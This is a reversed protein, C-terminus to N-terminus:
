AAEELEVGHTACWAQTYDILSSIRSKAMDASSERINVFEGELGPLIEAGLGTAIAHGSIFLVKWQAKSRPKGQFEVKKKALETCLAHFLSSQEENRKPEGIRVAYGQPATRVGHIARERAMDHALIYTKSM